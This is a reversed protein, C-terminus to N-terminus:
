AADADPHEVVRTIARLVSLPIRLKRTEGTRSSLAQVAFGSEDVFPNSILEFEEGYMRVRKQKAYGLAVLRACIADANQEKTMM